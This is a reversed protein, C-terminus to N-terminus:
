DVAAARSKEPEKLTAWGHQRRQLGSSCGVATSKGLTTKLDGERGRLRARAQEPISSFFFSVQLSFL